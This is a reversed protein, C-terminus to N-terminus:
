FLFLDPFLLFSPSEIRKTNFSCWRLKFSYDDKTILLLEVNKMYYCLTFFFGSIKGDSFRSSTMFFVCGSLNLWIPVFYICLRHDTISESFCLIFFIEHIIFTFILRNSLNLYTLLIIMVIIEKKKEEEDETM